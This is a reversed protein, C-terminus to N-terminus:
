AAAAAVTRASQFDRIASEPIRIVGRGAGIRQFTILREAILRRITAESVALRAAAGRVDYVQEANLESM